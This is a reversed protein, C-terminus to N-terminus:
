YTKFYFPALTIFVFVVSLALGSCTANIIFTRNGLIYRYSNMLKYRASQQDNLQLFKYILVIMGISLLFHLLFNYRWGIHDQMLGGTIPAIPPTFSVMSSIVLSAKALNNGGKFVDKLIARFSVLSSGMAIGQIFRFFVLSSESQAVFCLLSSMAFIIYGIILIRKRGHKDSLFGFILAALAMGLFYISVTMKSMIAPADFYTTIDPLSPTYSDSAFQSMVGMLCIIIIFLKNSSQAKM